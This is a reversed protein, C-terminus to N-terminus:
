AAVPADLRTLGAEVGALGAWLCGCAFFDDLLVPNKASAAIALTQNQFVV